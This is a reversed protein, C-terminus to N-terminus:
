QLGLMGNKIGESAPEDGLWIKFLAYKFDRGEIVGLEKGNKFAQVGKDKIYVIDFIDNKVIPENFFKIFKNIREDLAKTNGFTAKKFGDQVAKIMKKQTVFGSVINLKIAMTENADLIARPDKSKKQLYLGGAYLDIWLMERMGAGNLKLDTEGFNEEYPLVAKGVRIQATATTLSILAVILLTIKKM